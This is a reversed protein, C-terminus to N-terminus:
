SRKPKSPMSANQCDSSGRPQRGSRNQCILSRYPSPSLTSMTPRSPTTASRQMGFGRPKGLWAIIDQLLVNRVERASFFSSSPKITSLALECEGRALPSCGMPGPKSTPTARTTMPLTIARIPLGSLDESLYVSLYGTAPTDVELTTWPAAPPIVPESPCPSASEEWLVPLNASLPGDDDFLPLQTSTM